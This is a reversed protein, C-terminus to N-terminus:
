CFHRGQDRRFNSYKSSSFGRIAKRRRCFEDVSFSSPTEAAFMGTALAVVGAVVLTVLYRM